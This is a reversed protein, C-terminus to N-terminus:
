AVGPRSALWDDAEGQADAYAQIDDPDTPDNLSPFVGGGVEEYDELLRLRFGGGLDDARGQIDYSYFVPAPKGTIKQYASKLAALRAANAAVFDAPGPKGGLNRQHDLVADALVAAVQALENDDLEYAM